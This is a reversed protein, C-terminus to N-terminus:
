GGGFDNLQSPGKRFSNFNNLLSVDEPSMMTNAILYHRAIRGRRRKKIDTGQSLRSAEIRSINRLSSLYEYLANGKLSLCIRPPILSQVVDSLSSKREEIPIDQGNPSSLWHDMEDDVRFNSGRMDRLIMKALAMKDCTLSLIESTLDMGKQRDGLNMNMDAAAVDKAYSCFGHHFMTSTIKWQEDCWHLSEPEESVFNRPDLCDDTIAGCKCLLLDSESILNSIEHAIQITSLANKEEPGAYRRLDQGRLAKWSQRVVDPLSRRRFDMRSCEDMVHHGRGTAEAYEYQNIKNVKLPEATIHHTCRSLESLKCLRTLSKTHKPSLVDALGNDTIVETQVVRPSSSITRCSMTETDNEVATEPVYTSEPVCSIDDVSAEHHNQIESKIRTLSCPFLCYEKEEVKSDSLKRPSLTLFCEPETRLCPISSDAEDESDSSLVIDLKRKDKRCTFALPSGPSRLFDCPMNVSQNVFEQDEYISFNRSLMTEKMAELDKEIHDMSFSSALAENDIRQYNEEMTCLSTVIEKEVLASLESPFDWPMLKPLINHISNLDFLDDGHVGQATEDKHFNNGQCWFQLHMLTKRIDGNFCGVFREILQPNVLVNETACVMYVHHVLEKLSPMAFSMELRDLSDPLTISRNNTTLILPGKATNAIQEIAAVFGRDELFTIDVDEFLILPKVKQGEFPTQNEKFSFKEARSIDCPTDEYSIQMIETVENANANPLGSNGETENLPYNGPLRKLWQSKLAEGFRQKVLAGNRCDSANVEIIDFGQEEACAYITASKGCGVPGVILLVNKLGTETLESDSDQLHSSNSNELSSCEELVNLYRSNQHHREWWLHLWDNLFKVPADNGCIETASKPQFKDTWLLESPKNSRDIYYSTMREQLFKCQQKLDLKRLNEAHKSIYRVRDAEKYKEKELFTQNHSHAPFPFEDLTLSSVNDEFVSNNRELNHSAIISDDELFTWSRWDLSPREDDKTKEFVHIPGLTTDKKKGNILCAGGEIESVEGTKRALRWSSFFPHVQKGAFIRSNEEATLKAELRLNPIPQIRDLDDIPSTSKGSRKAPTNNVPRKEKKGYSAKKQPTTARRKRKRRGKQSGCIEVDEDGAEDETFGNDKEQDMTPEMVQSNPSFLTSQVLRRRVSRRISSRAEVAPPSPLMGTASDDM